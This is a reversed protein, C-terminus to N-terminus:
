KIHCDLSLFSDFIVGLKKVKYEMQKVMRDITLQFTETCKNFNPTAFLICQTKNPNMKLGNLSYWEKMTKLSTEAHAKLQELNNPTCSFLLQVDDAITPSTKIGPALNIKIMDTIFTNFLIPGLISGQTIWISQFM